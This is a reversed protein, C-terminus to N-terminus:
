GNHDDNESVGFIDVDVVHPHKTPLPYRAAAPMPRIGTGLVRANEWGHSFAVRNAAGRAM